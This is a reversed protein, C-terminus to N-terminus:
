VINWYSGLVILIHYLLCLFDISYSQSRYFSLCHAYAHNVPLLTWPENWWPDWRIVCTLFSWIQFYLHQAGSNKTFVALLGNIYMNFICQDFNFVLTFSNYHLQVKHLQINMHRCLKVVPPTHSELSSVTRSHYTTKSFLTGTPYSCLLCTM